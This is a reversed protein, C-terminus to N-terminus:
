RPGGDPLVSLNEWWWLRGSGDRLPSGVFLHTPRDLPPRACRSMVGFGNGVMTDQFRTDETARQLGVDADPPTPWDGWARGRYLRAEGYFSTTLAPATMLVEDRGDGDLDGANCVTSGFHANAANDAFLQTSDPSFETPGGPGLVGAWSQDTPGGRLIAVLGANEQPEGGDGGFTVNPIGLVVEPQNDGDTDAATASRVTSAFVIDTPQSPGFGRDGFRLVTSGSSDPAFLSEDVGDGDLDDLVFCRVEQPPQVAPFSFTHLVNVAWVLEDRVPETVAGPSISLAAYGSTVTGDIGVLLESGPVNPELDGVGLCVGTDGALPNAVSTATWHANAADPGLQAGAEIQSGSYLFVGTPNANDGWSTVVVDHEGDGDFDHGCEVDGGLAFPGIAAAEPVSGVRLAPLVDFGIVVYRGARICADPEGAIAGGFQGWTVSSGFAAGQPPDIFGMAGDADGSVQTTLVENVFDCNTRRFDFVEPAGPYTDDLGDDCDCVGFFEDTWGQAPWGDRDNDIAAGWEGFECAVEPGTADDDNATADDDDSVTSDDDDGRTSDDDDGPYASSPDLLLCGSAGFGLAILILFARMNM